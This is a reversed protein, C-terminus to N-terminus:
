SLPLEDLVKQIEDIGVIFKYKAHIETFDFEFMFQIADHAAWTINLAKVWKRLKHENLRKIALGRLQNLDLFRDPTQKVYNFTSLLISERVQKFIMIQHISKIYRVSMYVMLTGIAAILIAYFM